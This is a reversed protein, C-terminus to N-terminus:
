LAAQFVQEFGGALFKPVVVMPVSKRRDELHAHFPLRSGQRRQELVLDVANGPLYQSVGELVRGCAPYFSSNLIVGVQETQPDTIITLTNVRFNQLFARTGTM